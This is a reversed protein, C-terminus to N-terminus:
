SLTPNFEYSLYPLTLYTPLTPRRERQDIQTKENEILCYVSLLILDFRQFSSHISFLVVFHLFLLSSSHLLFFTM